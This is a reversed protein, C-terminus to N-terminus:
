RGERLLSAWIWGLRDRRGVCTCPERAGGLRRRPGPEAGWGDARREFSSSDALDPSYGKGGHTRPWVDETLAASFLGKLFDVIHQDGKARDLLDEDPVVPRAVLHLYAFREYQEIPAMAIADNLLVGRDIEWRRRREYLRAVEGENLPVNGKASRGYFRNHEGVTVMHPARPSPPVAVVLYGVAADAETPIAHVNIAPPEAICTRVIRDVREAAGPLDIPKPVMPRDHQDESIGYLLTGGDNAMAAVDFALDRSKRQAPIAAKVDFTATETLDGAEIAALIEGESEPIWVTRRM